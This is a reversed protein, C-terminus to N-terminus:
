CGVKVLCHTEVYGVSGDPALVLSGPGDLDDDDMSIVLVRDGAKLHAVMDDTTTPSNWPQAWARCPTRVTAM